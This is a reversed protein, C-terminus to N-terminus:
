QETTESGTEAELNKQLDDLADPYVAEKILEGAKDEVAVTVKIKDADKGDFLHYMMGTMGVTISAFADFSNEYSEKDTVVVTFRSFDNNVKIDEISQFAEDNKTDELTEKLSKQMDKMMKKHEAKSMVYTISGDDNKKVEKVGDEKADKIMQDVDQDELFEAPLTVEVNLLGKKVVKEEKEEKKADAKGSSDASSCGALLLAVILMGVAVKKM